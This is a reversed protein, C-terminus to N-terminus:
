RHLGYGRIYVSPSYVKSRHHHAPSPYSILMLYSVGDFAHELTEPKDYDAARTTVGAEKYKPDIKDPNRSILIIDKPDVLSLLHTYTSGGLGGAAPFIAIKNGSM